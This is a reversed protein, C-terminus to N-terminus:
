HHHNQKGLLPLPLSGNHVISSTKRQEDKLLQGHQPSVASQLIHDASEEVYDYLLHIWM